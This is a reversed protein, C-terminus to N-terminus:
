RRIGYDLQLSRGVTSAKIELLKRRM